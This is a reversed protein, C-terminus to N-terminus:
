LLPGVGYVIINNNNYIIEPKINKISIGKQNIAFNNKNLDYKNYNDINFLILDKLINLQTHIDEFEYIHILRIQKNYCLFSKNIHYNINNKLNNSHFFIGNFEIALKLEPLFIDLEYPKIQTRDNQKITGKYFNKICNVIYQEKKSIKNNINNYNKVYQEIISLCNNLIFLKRGCYLKLLSKNLARRWEYNNYIKNIKTAAICNNAHEFKNYKEFLSSKIKQKVDEIQFVYKVKYKTSLQQKIKEKHKTDKQILKIKQQVNKDQFMHEVGYRKKMTEKYKCITNSDLHACSLSCHTQYGLRINIFKTKTNCINCYGENIDKKLYIDYYNKLNLKETKTIRHSLGNLTKFANNCILCKYM